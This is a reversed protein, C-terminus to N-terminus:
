RGSFSCIPSDRTLKVKKNTSKLRINSDKVNPSPFPPFNPLSAIFICKEHNLPLIEEM